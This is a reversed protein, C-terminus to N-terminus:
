TILEAPSKIIGLLVLILILSTYLLSVLIDKKIERRSKKELFGQLGKHMLIFGLINTLLYGLIFSPLFLNKHIISFPWSFLYALPINVLADNWWSVPSLLFGVVAVVGYGAKQFFNIKM